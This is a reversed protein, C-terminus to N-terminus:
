DGTIGPNEAWDLMVMLDPGWLIKPLWVSLKPFDDSGASICAIEHGARALLLLCVIIGCIVWTGNLSIHGSHVWNPMQCGRGASMKVEM